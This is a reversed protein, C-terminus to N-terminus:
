SPTKQSTQACIGLCNKEIAACISDLPLNNIRAPNFPAQLEHAIRDLGFAPYAVLMSLLPTAWGVRGVLASPLLLLYVAIFRRIKLIYVRPLPTSAIRECGGIADVLQARATEITIAAGAPLQGSAAAEALLAALRYGVYSPMHVSQGIAQAEKPGLLREFASTDRSSRLSLRCAHPFSACWRAWQERWAADKPGYALGGQVLNRTANTIQGWLKRGEWWREYGGNSRFVLMFGLAGGAIEVPGVELHLEPVENYCLMWLVSALGIFLVDKIILNTISGDLAAACRWFSPDEVPAMKGTDPQPPPFPASSTTEQADARPEHPPQQTRMSLGYPITPAHALRSTKPAPPGRPAAPPSQPTALLRVPLRHAASADARVAVGLSM